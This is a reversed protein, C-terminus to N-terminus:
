EDRKITDTGGREIKWPGEDTYVSGLFSLGKLSEPQLAHHLLMTDEEAGLTRIGYARYLFVIDYMGNQFLKRISRDELINGVIRWAQMETTHNSWYSRGKTREDYFPIVIAIDPSPSFGICTIFRGSTEIDVSLCSCGRIHEEYFRGIDEISPEIWVSRKPRRVDPFENERRAKMLDIVTVPRLDWQRLVASPHYTGLCKYGTATHSSIGTTGRLKSIGTKGRLAWLATNGLCVVVNPDVFLLEDGLRELEHAFESRVYQSKGMQPYGPLSCSKPGTFDDVQGAQRNFVNSRYVEPHMRWIMDLYTPNQEDYYKRVFSLDEATLDIVQADNLMKLLELGTAGVFGTQTKAENAGWHEGLLFIPKSM